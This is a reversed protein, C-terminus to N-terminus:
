LACSRSCSGHGTCVRSTSCSGHGTCVRSTSCSGHGTCVTSWPGGLHLTVGTGSRAGMAERGESLVHRLQLSWDWSIIIMSPLCPWASARGGVRRGWQNDRTMIALSTGGCTDGRAAVWGGMGRARRRVPWSRRRWAVAGTQRLKRQPPPPQPCWGPACPRCPAWQRPSHAPCPATAPTAAPPPRPRATWPPVPAHLHTSTHAHSCMHTGCWRGLSTCCQLHLTEPPHPPTNFLRSHHGSYSSSPSKHTHFYAHMNTDTTLLTLGM